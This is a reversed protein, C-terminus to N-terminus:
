GVAGCGCGQGGEWVGALAALPGLQKTLDSDM